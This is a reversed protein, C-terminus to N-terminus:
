AHLADNVASIVAQGHDTLVRVSEKVLAPRNVDGMVHERVMRGTYKLAYGDMMAHQFLSVVMVVPLSLGGVRDVADDTSWGKTRCLATWVRRLTAVDAGLLAAHARSVTEDAPSSIRETATPAHM